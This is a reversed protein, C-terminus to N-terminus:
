KELLISTIKSSNKLSNHLIDQLFDIETNIDTFNRGHFSTIESSLMAFALVVCAPPTITTTSTNM